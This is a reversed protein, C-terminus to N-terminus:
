IRDESQDKKNLEKNVQTVKDIHKGNILFDIDGNLTRLIACLMAPNEDAKFPMNLVGGDKMTLRIKTRKLEASIIKGCDAFKIKRNAFFVVINGFFFRMPFRAPKEKLSNELEGDAKSIKRKFILPQVIYDVTYFLSLLVLAASIIVARFPNDKFVGTLALAIACVACVTWTGILTVSYIKRYQKLIENM